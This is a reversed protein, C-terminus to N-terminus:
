LQSCYNIVREATKFAERSCDNIGIGYYSNGTLFLGPHKKMAEEIIRMRESHGVTYQPIAKEHRYIKIFDPSANIGLIVKLDQRVANILADDKLVAAGPNRAGGIMARLLVYGEPARGEYMSSDWLCGLINMKEEQPILFGFGDLPHSILSREYGFCAVIVPPYPIENLVKAINPELDGIVKSTIYAPTALIVVDADAKREGNKDRFYITYPYGEGMGKEVTQVEAGTIIENGLREGMIHILYEIGERFSTLTGGPGTPGGKKEMGGKDGSGKIGKLLRRLMAIVLSGNGEKELDAMVPFSSKLSLSYPDGAFVGSVMPGVLKKLPEEGIHRKVFDSITEDTREEPMRTFPELLIRLRGPISLIKSKFFFTPVSEPIQHLIGESYIFRKRASENTRILRDKIGLKDCLDLTWPKNDLFGNPGRECLFGDARESWLKGGLRNDAELVTLDPPIEHIGVAKSKEILLYATVLGSIGGGVIVVKM